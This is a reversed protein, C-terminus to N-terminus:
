DNMSMVLGQVGDGRFALCYNPDAYNIRGSEEMLRSYELIGPSQSRSLNMVEVNGFRKIEQAYYANVALGDVEFVHDFSGGRCVPCKSERVPEPGGFEVWHRVEAEHKEYEVFHAPDDYDWRFCHPCPSDPRSKAAPTFASWRANQETFVDWFLGDANPLRANDESMIVGSNPIRVCARADTAYISQGQEFPRHFDFRSHKWEGSTWPSLDPAAVVLSPVLSNGFIAAVTKVFTRRQM